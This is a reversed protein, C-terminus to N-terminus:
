HTFNNVFEFTADRTVAENINDIILKLEWILSIFTLGIFNYNLLLHFWFLYYIPFLFAKGCKSHLKWKCKLNKTRFLNLYASYDQNQALEVYALMLYVHETLSICLLELLHSFSSFHIESSIIFIYEVCLIWIAIKMIINSLGFILWILIGRFLISPLRFTISQLYHHHCKARSINIRDVILINWVVFQKCNSLLFGYCNTLHYIIKNPLMM